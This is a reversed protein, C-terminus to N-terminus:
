VPRKLTEELEKFEAELCRKRLLDVQSLEKDPTRRLRSEENRREKEIQKEVKNWRRCTLVWGLFLGILFTIIAFM